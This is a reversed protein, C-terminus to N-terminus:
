PKAAKLVFICPRRSKHREQLPRKVFSVLALDLDLGILVLLDAQRLLNLDLGPVQRMQSFVEELSVCTEVDKYKQELLLLAKAVERDRGEDHAGVIARGQEAHGAMHGHDVGDDIVIDQPSM